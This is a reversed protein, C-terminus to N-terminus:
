TLLKDKGKTEIERKGAKTRRKGRARDGMEKEREQIKDRERRRGEEEIGRGKKGGGRGGRGKRRRGEKRGGERGRGEKREEQGERGRLSNIIGLTSKIISLHLVLGHIGRRTGGGRLLM